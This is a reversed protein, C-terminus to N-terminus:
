STRRFKLRSKIKKFRKIFKQRDGVLTIQEYFLLLSNLFRFHLVSVKFIKSPIRGGMWSPQLDKTHTARTDGFGENNSITFIPAFSVLNNKFQMYQFQIDWTLSPNKSVKQFRGLWVSKQEENLSNWIVSTSLTGSISGNQINSSYKQWVDKTTGWGWCAFYPTSRFKNIRSTLINSPVASFACVSGFHELKAFELLGQKLVALGQTSIEIDDEIVIVRDFDSLVRSIASTVHKTLGLNSSEINYSFNPNECAAAIKNLIKEHEIRSEIGGFDISVHIIENRNKLLERLRKEILEPRNFGIILIPTRLESNQM